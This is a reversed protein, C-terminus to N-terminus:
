ISDLPREQDIADILNYGRWTIGKLTDWSKTGEATNWNAKESIIFKENKLLNFAAVLNLGDQEIKGPLALYTEHLRPLAVAQDPSAIEELQKLIFRIAVLDRKLSDGTYQFARRLPRAEQTM